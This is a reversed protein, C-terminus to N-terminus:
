VNVWGDSGLFLGRPARRFLMGVSNPVLHHLKFFHPSDLFKKIRLPQSVSYHYILLASLPSKIYVESIQIFGAWFIQERHRPYILQYVCGCAVGSHAEQISELSVMLYCQSCVVLFFCGKESGNSVVM